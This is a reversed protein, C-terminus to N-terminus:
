YHCDNAGSVAVGILERQIRSLPGRGYMLERYLEWHLRLVRSHVGHVRIINDDDDVRDEPPISEPDLYPIYAM